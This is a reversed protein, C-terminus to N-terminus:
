KEQAKNNKTMCKYLANLYNQKEEDTCTYNNGNGKELNNIYARQKGMMKALDAMKVGCRHRYEALQKM